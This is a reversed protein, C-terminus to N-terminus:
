AGAAGAVAAGAAAVGAAAATWLHQAALGRWPRWGEARAVAQAPSLGGMMRRLVLDHAPFADLDRLARLAVYEVTWPGIGPLSALARRAAGHDGTPSLELGDALARALHVVTAARAGTLGIGRVVDPGADAVAAPVPFTLLDGARDGLLSALRGALTRAAPVSVQQGPVTKLALEAGDVAGPVTLLP